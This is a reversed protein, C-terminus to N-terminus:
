EERELLIMDDYYIQYKNGEIELFIFDKYEEINDYEFIIKGIVLGGIASIIMMVIIAFLISRNEM